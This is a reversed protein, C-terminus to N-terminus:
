RVIAPLTVVEIRRTEAAGRWRGANAPDILVSQGSAQAHAMLAEFAVSVGPEATLVGIAAAPPRHDLVTVSGARPSAIVDM